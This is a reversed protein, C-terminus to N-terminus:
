PELRYYPAHLHEVSILVPSIGDEKLQAKIAKYVTLKEEINSVDMGFYIDWGRKTDHWGLGHQPDFNLITNEPTYENTTVIAAVMKPTM